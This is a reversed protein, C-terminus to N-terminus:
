YAPLTARKESTKQLHELAKNAETFSPDSIASVSQQAAALSHFSWHRSESWNYQVSVTGGKKRASTSFRKRLFVNLEEKSMEEVPRSFKTGDATAIWETVHLYFNNNNNRLRWSRTFDRHEITNQLKYPLSLPYTGYIRMGFKIPKGNNSPRCHGYNRASRKYVAWGIQKKRM